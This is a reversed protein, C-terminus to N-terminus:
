SSMKKINHPRQSIEWKIVSWLALFDYKHHCSWSFEWGAVVLVIQFLACLGGPVHVNKKKQGDRLGPNSWKDLVEINATANVKLVQPFFYLLIFINKNGEVGPDYCIICLSQTYWPPYQIFDGTMERTWKRLVM